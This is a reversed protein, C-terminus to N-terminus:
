TAGLHASPRERRQCSTTQTIFAGNQGANAKETTNRPPSPQCWSKGRQEGTSQSAKHTTTVAPSPSQTQNPHYSKANYCQPQIDMPCSNFKQDGLPNQLHWSRSHSPLSIGRHASPALAGRFSSNTVGPLFAAPLNGRAQNGQQLLESREHRHVWCGVLRKFRTRGM